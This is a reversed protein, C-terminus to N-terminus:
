AHFEACHPHAICCQPIVKFSTITDYEGVFRFRTSGAYQCYQDPDDMRWTTLVSGEGHENFLICQDNGSVSLM